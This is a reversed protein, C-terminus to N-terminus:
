PCWIKLSLDNANRHATFSKDVETLSLIRLVILVPQYSKSNPLGSVQLISIVEMITDLDPHINILLQGLTLSSTWSVQLEVRRSPWRPISIRTHITCQLSIQSKLKISRSTKNLKINHHISLDERLRHLLPLLQKVWIIVQLVGMAIVEILHHILVPHGRYSRISKHLTSLTVQVKNILYTNMEILRCDAILVLWCLNNNVLCWCTLNTSHILLIKSM